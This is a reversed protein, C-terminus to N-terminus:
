RLWGHDMLRQSLAGAGCGWDLIKVNEGASLYPGLLDLIQEHVFEDTKMPIGKYHRQKKKGIKIWPPAGPTVSVKKNM